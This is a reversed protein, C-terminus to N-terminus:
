IGALLLMILKVLAAIQDQHDTIWQLLNTLLTGDGIKDVPMQVAASLRKIDANSVKENVDKLAQAFTIRKEKSWAQAAKVRVIGNFVPHSGNADKSKDVGLFVPDQSDPIVIIIQPQSIDPSSTMKFTIGFSALAVSVVTALWKWNKKLFALM